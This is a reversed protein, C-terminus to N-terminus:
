RKHEGPGEGNRRFFREFAQAIAEGSADPSDWTDRKAELQAIYAAMEEDEAAAADITAEWMAAETALTGRPVDVGTVEHLRDLLALTAKPSASGTQVYHPVNAWLSLAPIGAQEAAHDLASLIGIPGEYTSREIGLADRVEANESSAFISIPRTHPVDSLMAGLTVFGTIDESLAADIFEASFAQWARAPETGTLLWLRPEGDGATGTPRQMRASPWRLSRNGDQDRELTPRAWQYDFYLEPDVAHVLDFTGDDIQEAAASAAEGADNWGDFAAVLIRSGLVQM